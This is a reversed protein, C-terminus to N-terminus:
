ITKHDCNAVPERIEENVKKKSSKQAKNKNAMTKFKLTLCLDAAFIHLKRWVVLDKQWYNINKAPFREKVPSM